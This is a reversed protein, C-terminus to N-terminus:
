YKEAIFKILEKVTPEKEFEYEEERRGILERLFTFYRIKVKM